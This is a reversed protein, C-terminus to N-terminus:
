LSSGTEIIIDWSRITGMYSDIDPLMIEFRLCTWEHPLDGRGSADGECCRGSGQAHALLVTEAAPSTSNLWVWKDGDASPDTELFYHEAISFLEYPESNAFIVCTVSSSATKFRSFLM